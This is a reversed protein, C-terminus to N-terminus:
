IRDKKFSFNIQELLIDINKIESIRWGEDIKLLKFTILVPQKGNLLIDVEITREDGNTRLLRKPFGKLVEGL